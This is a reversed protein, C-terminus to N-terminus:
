FKVLAIFIFSTVMAKIYIYIYSLVWIYQFTFSLLVVLYGVNQLYKSGRMEQTRGSLDLGSFLQRVEGNGEEGRNIVLYWLLRELWNRIYGKIANRDTSHQYQQMKHIKFPRSQRTIRVSDRQTPWCKNGRRIFHKWCNPEVLIWPKRRSKAEHECLLKFWFNKALRLYKVITQKNAFKMKIHLVYVIIIRKKTTGECLNEPELKKIFINYRPEEFMDPEHFHTNYLNNQLNM